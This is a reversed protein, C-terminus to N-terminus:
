LDVVEVDSYSLDHGLFQGGVRAFRTAGDTALLRLSGPSEEGRTAGGAELVTRVVNATTSASDVLTVNDDVVERIVGQGEAAGCPRAARHTVTEFGPSIPKAPTM